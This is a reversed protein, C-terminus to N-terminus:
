LIKLLALIVVVVVAAAIYILRTKRVRNWAKENFYYKDGSCKVMIAKSVMARFIHSESLGLEALSKAKDISTCDQSLFCSIIRKQKIIPLTPTITNM